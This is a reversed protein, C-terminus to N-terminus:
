GNIEKGNITLERYSPSLQNIEICLDLWEALAQLKDPDNDTVIKSLKARKEILQILIENM